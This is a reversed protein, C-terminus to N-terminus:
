YNSFVIVRCADFVSWGILPNSDCASDKEFSAVIGIDLVSLEIAVEDVICVRKSSPRHCEIFSVAIVVDELVNEEVACLICVPSVVSSIGVQLVALNCSRDIEDAPSTGDKEVIAVDNEYFPLIILFPIDDGSWCGRFVLM